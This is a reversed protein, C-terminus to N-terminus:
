TFALPMVLAIRGDEFDFRVASTGNDVTTIRKPEGLGYVADLFVVRLGARNTNRLYATEGNVKYSRAYLRGTKEINESLVVTNKFDGELLRSTNPFTNEADMTALKNGKIDYYGVALGDKNPAFLAIHGNTGVIYEGTCYVATLYPRNADTGVGRWLWEIVTKPTKPTKPTYYTFLRALLERENDDRSKEFLTEIIDQAQEKKPKVAQHAMDYLTRM